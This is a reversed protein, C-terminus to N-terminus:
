CGSTNVISGSTASAPSRRWPPMRKAIRGLKAALARDATGVNLCYEWCELHMRLTIGNGDQCFDLEYEIEDL